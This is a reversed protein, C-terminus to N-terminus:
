GGLRRVRIKRSRQIGRAGDRPDGTPEQGTSHSQSPVGQVDVRVKPDESGALSTRTEVDSCEQARAHTQLLITAPRGSWALGWSRALWGHVDPNPACRRVFYLAKADQFTRGGCSEQRDPSPTVPLLLMALAPCPCRM